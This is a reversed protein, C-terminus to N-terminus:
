AAEKRPPKAKAEYRALLEQAQKIEEAILLCVQHVNEDEVGLDGGAADALVYAMSQARDLRDTINDRSVTPTRPNTKM